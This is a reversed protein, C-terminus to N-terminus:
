PAYARLFRKAAARAILDIEGDPPNGLGLLARTQRQGTVMGAFFEAAQMPDDVKLRGTDSEAKLFSALEKRSRLPGTEFVIRALDPMEEASQITLRLLSHNRAVVELLTRAYGALAEEAQAGTATTRLPATISNVRREVLARVIEAKSRYRNYVTQKSVGARRAIEELPAALGLSAL